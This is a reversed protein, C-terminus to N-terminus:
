AHHFQVLLGNLNDHTRFGFGNSVAHTRHNSGARHRRCFHCRSWAHSRNFRLCHRIRRLHGELRQHGRHGTFDHGQILHRVFGKGAFRYAVAQRNARGVFGYYCRCIAGDHFDEVGVVSETQFGVLARLNHHM